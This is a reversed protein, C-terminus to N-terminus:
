QRRQAPCERSVEVSATWFRNLEEGHEVWNLPLRAQYGAPLVVASMPRNCTMEVLEPWPRQGRFSATCRAAPWDIRNPGDQLMGEPPSGCFALSLVARALAFQGTEDLAAQLDGKLDGTRVTQEFELPIRGRLCTCPSSPAAGTTTAYLALGAILAAAALFPGEARPAPRRKWASRM